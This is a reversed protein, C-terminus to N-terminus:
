LPSVLGGTLGENKLSFGKEPLRTTPPGAREIDGYRRRRWLTATDKLYRTDTKIKMADEVINVGDMYQKIEWLFDDVARADHKGVFPSPKPFDVNPAHNSTNGGGSAM